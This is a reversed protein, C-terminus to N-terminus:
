KQHGQDRWNGGGGYGEEDLDPLDACKTIDFDVREQTEKVHEFNMMFSDFHHDKIDFVVGTGDMFSKMNRVNDGIRPDWYKRLIQYANQTSLYGRQVSM